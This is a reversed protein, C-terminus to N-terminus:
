RMLKKNTQFRKWNQLLNNIEEGSSIESITEPKDSTLDSIDPIKTYFNREKINDWIELDDQNLSKNKVLGTVVSEEEEPQNNPLEPVDMNLIGCLFESANRFKDFLSTVHNIDTINEELIKGTRITRLRKIASLSNEWKTNLQILIELIALTYIKFIQQLINRTEFSLLCNENDYVVHSFRKLFVQSIPLSNGLKIEFNLIDKLVLIVIPENQAKSYKKIIFDPLNERDCDKVTRFIGILYFEMLLKILNKQRAIRLQDEKEKKRNM